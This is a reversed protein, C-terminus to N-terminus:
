YNFYWATKRKQYYGIKCFPSFALAIFKVKELSSFMSFQFFFLLLPSQQLETHIPVSFFCSYRKHKANPVYYFM